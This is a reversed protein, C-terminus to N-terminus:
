SGIGGNKIIEIMREAMCDECNEHSVCHEPTVTWCFAHRHEPTEAIEDEIQKIVNETDYAIPQEDIMKEVQEYLPSFTTQFIATQGKFLERIEELLKSKRILDGM